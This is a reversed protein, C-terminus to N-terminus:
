AQYRVSKIKGSKHTYFQRADIVPTERKDYKIKSQKLSSADVSVKPKALLEAPRAEEPLLETAELTTDEGQRLLKVAQRYHEKTIMFCDNLNINEDSLCHM